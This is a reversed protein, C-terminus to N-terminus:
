PRVSLFLVQTVSQSGEYMKQCKSEILSCGALVVISGKEFWLSVGVRRLGDALDGGGRRGVEEYGMGSGNEGLGFVALGGDPRFGGRRDGM